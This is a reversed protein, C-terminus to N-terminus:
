IKKGVIASIDLAPVKPTVEEKTENKKEPLVAKLAQDITEKPAALTVLRYAGIRGDKRLRKICRTCFKVRTVLSGKLVRLKQLNPHFFRKVRNKAHSVANGTQRGKGCHDCRYAM